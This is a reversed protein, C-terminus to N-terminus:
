GVEKKLGDGEGLKVECLQLYDAIKNYTTDTAQMEPTKDLFQPSYHSVTFRM